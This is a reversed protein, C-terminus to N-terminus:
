RKCAKNCKEEILAVYTAICYYLALGDGPPPICAATAVCAALYAAATIECEECSALGTPDVSGIPDNAAYVYINAQQGDFKIPDKATWRGVLPDYDRAGLAVNNGSANALSQYAM